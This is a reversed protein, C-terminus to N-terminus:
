IEFQEPRTFGAVGKKISSDLNGLIRTTLQLFDKDSNECLSFMNQQLQNSLLKNEKM